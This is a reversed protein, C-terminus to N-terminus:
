EPKASRSKSRGKNEQPVLTYTRTGETLLYNAIYERFEEHSLRVSGLKKNMVFANFLLMNFHLFFLTGWWKNSKRKSNYNMIYQDALDVGAMNKTYDVICKPKVIQNGHPDRKSTLVYEAKHITSIITVSRKDCWKLVLCPRNRRFVVDDRKLKCLKVAKPVNKRNLRLTGCMLTQRYFLESALEYSSYYNDMFLQYGKDLLDLDQMMGFVLKTTITCDPDLVHSALQKSNKGTYVQFGVIYGSESECVQFLKIHFRSPKAPNYVQFKSAHSTNRLLKHCFILCKLLKLFLRVKFKLRGKFACCAEDISLYRNPKYVYKFNRQLMEMFTRVKFLPDHRRHGSPRCKSNDNLHINSLLKQFANRSLYKGFFPTQGLNNSSWYKESNSKKVLGTIIMRSMIVKIDDENVDKWNNM